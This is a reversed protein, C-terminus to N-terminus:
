IYTHNIMLINHQLIFFFSTLKYFNYNTHVHIQVQCFLICIWGSGSGCIKDLVSCCFKCRSLLLTYCFVAVSGAIPHITSSPMAGIKRALSLRAWPMAITHISNFCERNDMYLFTTNVKFFLLDKSFMYKCIHVNYLM